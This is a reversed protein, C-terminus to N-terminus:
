DHFYHYIVMTSTARDYMAFVGHRQNEGEVRSFQLPEKFAPLSKVLRASRILSRNKLKDQIDIKEEPKLNQHQCYDLFSTESIRCTAVWDGALFGTVGTVRIRAAEPLEDQAVFKLRQSPLSTWLTTAAIFIALGLTPGCLWLRRWRTIKRRDLISRTILFPISMIVSLLGAGLIGPLAGMMM